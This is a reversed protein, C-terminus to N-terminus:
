NIISSHKYQDFRLYVYLLPSDLYVIFLSSDICSCMILAFILSCLIYSQMYIGVLMSKLLIIGAFIVSIIGGSELLAVYSNDIFVVGNNINSINPLNNTFQIWRVPFSNLILHQMNIRASFLSNINYYFSNFSNYHYDWYIFLLPILIGLPIFLAYLCRKIFVIQIFLLLVVVIIDFYLIERCNTVKYFFVAVVLSLFIIFPYFFDYYENHTSSLYDLYIFLLLLIGIIIEGTVNPHTFGLSNGKYEGTINAYSTQINPIKGILNLIIVIIVPILTFLSGYKIFKKENLLDANYCMVFILIEHLTSFKIGLILLFIFAIVLFIPLLCKKNRNIVIIFLNIFVVAFAVLNFASHFPFYISLNSMDFINLIILCLYSYLYLNSLIRDNNENMYIKIIIVEM